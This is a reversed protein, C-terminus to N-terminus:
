CYQKRPSPSDDMHRNQKLDNKQVYKMDKADV